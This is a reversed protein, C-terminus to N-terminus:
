GRLLPDFLIERLKSGAGKFEGRQFAQVEKIVDILEM